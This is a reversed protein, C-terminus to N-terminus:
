ISKEKGYIAFNNGAWYRCPLGHNYWDPKNQKFFHKKRKAYKANDIATESFFM